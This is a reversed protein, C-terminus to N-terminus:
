SRAQGSSTSHTSSDPAEAPESEPSSVPDVWVDPDRHSAALANKRAAKQTKLINKEIDRARKQLERQRFVGDAGQLRTLERLNGQMLAEQRAKEQRARRWDWFAASFRGAVRAPNIKLSLITGACFWGFFILTGGIPNVLRVILQEGLWYGVVGGSYFLKLKKGLAALFLPHIQIFCSFATVAVLGWAVRKLLEVNEDEDFFLAFSLYGLFFPIFLTSFGLLGYCGFALWAGLPGIWNGRPQNVPDQLYSIDGPDYSCISFFLLITVIALVSGWLERNTSIKNKKAM